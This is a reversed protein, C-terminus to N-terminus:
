LLERPPVARDIVAIFKDPRPAAWGRAAAYDLFELVAGCVKAWRSPDDEPMWIRLMAEGLDHALLDGIPRQPGGIHLCESIRRLTEAYSSRRDTEPVQACFAEAASRFEPSPRHRRRRRDDRGRRIEHGAMTATGETGMASAVHGRLKGGRTGAGAPTM